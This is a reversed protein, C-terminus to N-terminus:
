SCIINIQDTIDQPDWPRLQYITTHGPAIGTIELIINPFSGIPFSDLPRKDYSTSKNSEKESYLVVKAIKSDLNKIDWLYGAPSKEVVKLLQSEGVKLHITRFTKSMHIEM